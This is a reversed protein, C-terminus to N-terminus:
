QCIAVIFTRKPYDFDEVLVRSFVQVAQLEGRTPNSIVEGSIFDTYSVNDM